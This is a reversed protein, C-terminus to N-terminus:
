LSIGLVRGTELHIIPSGESGLLKAYVYSPKGNILYSMGLSINKYGLKRGEDYIIRERVKSPYEFTKPYHICVIRGISKDKENSMHLPPPMTGKNGNAVKMKLLGKNQKQVSYGQINLFNNPKPLPNNSFDLRFDEADYTGSELIRNSTMVENESIVFCSCVQNTKINCIRGVSRNWKMIDDKHKELWANWYFSYPNEIKGNKVLLSPFAWPHLLLEGVWKESIEGEERISHKLWKDFDDSYTTKKEIFIERM